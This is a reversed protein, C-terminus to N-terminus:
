EEQSTLAKINADVIDKIAQTRIGITSMTDLEDGTPKWRMKTRTDQLMDGNKFTVTCRCSDHRRYVDKPVDDPYNYTGALNRCWECAGGVLTRTIKPSMGAKYRFKANEKIFDDVFSQSTNRIPGDMKSIMETYDIGDKSVANIISKVRGDPYTSAIPEIGVNDSADIEKQVNVAADNSLHHNNKMLPSILREAINYYMKGDPLADPTVFEKLAEAAHDGLYSAYLSVDHITATGANLKNIFSLIREDSAVAEQFAKEIKAYLAPVIDDM